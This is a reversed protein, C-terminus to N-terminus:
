RGEPLKVIYYGFAENHGQMVAYGMDALIDDLAVAIQKTDCDRGASEFDEADFSAIIEAEGHCHRNM